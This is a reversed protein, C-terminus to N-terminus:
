RGKGTEERLFKRLAGTAVVLDLEVVLAPGPHHSSRSKGHRNLLPIEFQKKAKAPDKDIPPLTNVPLAFQGIFDSKKLKDGTHLVFLLVALDPFALPFAFGKDWTCCDYGKSGETRMVSVDRGVGWLEVSVYNHRISRHNLRRASLVQVRLLQTPPRTLLAPPVRGTMWDPKPVYGGRGNGRFFGQYAWLPPAPTQWNLAVVQAGHVWAIWPDFNSSDVRLVSPYIRLLQVQTSDLVKWGDESALMEELKTESISMSAAPPPTSGSSSLITTAKHNYVSIVDQLRLDDEDVIKTIRRSIRNPLDEAVKQLEVADEEGGRDKDRILIKGILQDVSPFKEWKAAASGPIFLKEGFTSRLMQVIRDTNIGDCHNELTVIVPLRSTAFAYKNICKLCKLFSIPKTMTFGHYVKPERKGNWVDLEIVRCGGELSMQIPRTSCASTLQNGTLYSNHGASIFYHSLPLNLPMEPRNPSYRDRVNAYHDDEKHNFLNLLLRSSALLRSEAFKAQGRPTREPLVHPEARSVTLPAPSPLAGAGLLANNQPVKLPPTSSRKNRPTAV